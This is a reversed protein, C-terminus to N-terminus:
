LCLFREEALGRRKQRKKIDQMIDREVCVETKKRHRRM